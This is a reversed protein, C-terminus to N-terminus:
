AARDRGAVVADAGLKRGTEFRVSGKAIRLSRERPRFLRSINERTIILYDPLMKAAGERVKDTLYGADLDREQGKLKSRIELVAVRSGPGLEAVAPMALLWVAAFSIFWRPEM